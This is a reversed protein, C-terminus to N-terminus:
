ELLLSLGRARPRRAPNQHPRAHVPALEAVLWLGVAGGGATRGPLRVKCFTM